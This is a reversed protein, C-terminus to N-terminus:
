AYRLSDIVLEREYLPGRVTLDRAADYPASPTTM